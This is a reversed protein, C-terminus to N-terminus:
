PNVKAGRQYPYSQRRRMAAEQPISERPQSRDSRSLYLNTARNM